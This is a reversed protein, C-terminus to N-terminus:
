CMLGDDYMESDPVSMHMHMSYKKGNKDFLTLHTKKTRKRVRAPARDQGCGWSLEASHM